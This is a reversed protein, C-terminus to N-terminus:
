PKPTNDDAPQKGDGPEECRREHEGSQPDVTDQSREADHGDDADEVRQGYRYDSPDPQRERDDAAKQQHQRQVGCEEPEGGVRHGVGDRDVREAPGEHTREGGGGRRDHELDREADVVVVCVGQTHDLPHGAARALLHVGVLGPDDEDLDVAEREGYELSRDAVPM